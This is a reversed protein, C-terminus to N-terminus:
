NCITNLIPIPPPRSENTLFKDIIAFCYEMSILTTNFSCGFSVSLSKALVTKGLGPVDDILIHGGCMASILAYQIVHRKGVIVTSVNDVINEALERAEEPSM